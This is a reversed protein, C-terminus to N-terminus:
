VDDQPNAKDEARRARDCQSDHVVIDMLFKSYLATAIGDWMMVYDLLALM